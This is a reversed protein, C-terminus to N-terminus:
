LQDDTSRSINLARLLETRRAPESESDDSSQRGASPTNNRPASSKDHEFRLRDFVSTNEWTPLRRAAAQNKTKVACM